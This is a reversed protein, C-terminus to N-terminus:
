LESLGSGSLRDAQPRGGSKATALYKAEKRQICGSKMPTVKFFRGRGWAGTKGLWITSVSFLLRFVLTM